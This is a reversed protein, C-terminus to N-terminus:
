KWPNYNIIVFSMNKGSNNKISLCFADRKTVKKDMKVYCVGNKLVSHAIPKNGLSLSTAFSAREEYPIIAFQQIGQRGTIWYSITSNKKATVEIFSFKYREDQGNRFRGGTHVVGGQRKAIRYAMDNLGLMSVKDKITCEGKRDIDIEDMLTWDMDYLFERSVKNANSPNRLSKCRNIITAMEKPVDTQAFSVNPILMLFLLLLVAMMEDPWFNILSNQYKKDRGTTLRKKPLHAQDVNEAVCKQIELLSPRRTADFLLCQHILNSLTVGCHAAGIYPVETEQTQREQGLGGFVPVGMLAYFILCGLQWVYEEEKVAVPEYEKSLLCFDDDKIGVMRATLSKPAQGVDVQALHGLLRWTAKETLYGAIEDLYIM